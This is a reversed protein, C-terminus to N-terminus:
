TKLIRKIAPDCVSCQSWLQAVAGEPNYWGPDYVEPLFDHCAYNRGMRLEQLLNVERKGEWKLAARIYYGILWPWVTGNHYALDRERINGRYHSIYNEDERDLTRLGVPTLLRNIWTMAKVAEIEECPSFNIGLAIVQNCRLSDDRTNQSIVDSYYRGNFFKRFSERVKNVEWSLSNDFDNKLKRLIYLANHWLANIEVCKGERPTVPQGDVVADMWSSQKKSVILHDEDIHAVENGRQYSKVISEIFPLMEEVFDQDPFDRHYEWLANIFWLPADSSNYSPNESITNPLLGEKARLAFGRFIGRIVEKSIIGNGLMIRAFSPLSIFTDRGWPKVFWHFGASLFYEDGQKFLFNICRASSRDRKYLEKLSNLNISKDLEKEISFFIKKKGEVELKMFVHSEERAPYGREEEKPYYSELRQPVDLVIINGSCKVLFERFDLEICNGTKSIEFKGYNGLENVERYTFAIAFEKKEKSDIELELKRQQYPLTISIRVSDEAYTCSDFSLESLSLSHKWLPIIRHILIYNCFRKKACLIGHYKRRVSFDDELSLYDGFVNTLLIEM